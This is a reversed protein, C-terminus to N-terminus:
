QVPLCDTHGKTPYKTLGMMILCQTGAETEALHRRVGEEADGDYLGSFLMSKQTTSHKWADIEANAIVTFLANACAPCDQAYPMLLKYADAILESALQRGDIVGHEDPKIDYTLELM